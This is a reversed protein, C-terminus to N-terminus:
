FEQASLRGRRSSPCALGPRGEEVSSGPRGPRLGSRLMGRRLEQCAFGYKSEHEERVSFLRLEDRLDSSDRLSRLLHKSGDVGERHLWFGTM